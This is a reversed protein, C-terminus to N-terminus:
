RQGDAAISVRLCIATAHGPEDERAVCRIEAPASSRVAVAMRYREALAFLAFQWERPDHTPGTELRLSAPPEFLFSFTHLPHSLGISMAKVYAEKLTWLEIFRTQREAAPCRQLDAIERSSFYHAALDLMSAPGDVAEVDIGVDCGTSVACAVLGRTHSLNFAIDAAPPGTVLPKGFETTAFTWAEAPLDHRDSLERRLLAHAIVFDLRDREFVFRSAREREAPSLTRFAAAFQEPTLGDTLRYRVHVDYTCANM